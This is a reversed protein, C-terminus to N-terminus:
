HPDILLHFTYIVPISVLLRMKLTLRFNQTRLILLVYLVLHLLHFVKSDGDYLRIGKVTCVAEGPCLKQEQFYLRDM